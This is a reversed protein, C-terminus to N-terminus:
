GHHKERELAPLFDRITVHDAMQPNCAMQYHMRLIPHVGIQGLAKFSGDRLAAREGEDLKFREFLAERNTHLTELMGPERFLKELLQQVRNTSNTM